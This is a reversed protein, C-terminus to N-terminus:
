EGSRLGARREVSMAHHIFGEARAFAAVFPASKKLGGATVEAVSMRKMFSEVGLPSAYRAAGGTPLVHNTGIFYDGLAVPTHPGVFIAAANQIKKVDHSATRTMIQLHEPAIENVIAISEARSRTVFVTVATADLRALTERAPSAAVALATAAAIKEAYSIRETICVAMEDGSGHEAQALLDLAVWEPNVSDDAIIAVESPGAISDVDVIGYVQRKAAAVYANGPGVIKDVPRITKTGYALAAIAQAGGIRYAETIGCLKLAYAMGPDLERRPPTAVVIGAVGAVQAPIVNMLVSSPYVTHGGPVYVAVRHLPRWIQSLTGEGTKLSYGVPKQREHFARIRKAAERMAQALAPSVNRAAAAIVDPEIRVSHPALKVGDFKKTLAFLAADGRSRIDSLVDSVRLAISEDRATRNMLLKRLFNRGSVTSYDIVPISQKNNM